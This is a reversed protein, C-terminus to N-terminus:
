RKPQSYSVTPFYGLTFVSLLSTKGCAGDGIIVLKRDVFITLIQSFFQRKLARRPLGELENPNWLTSSHVKQKKCVTRITDVIPSRLFSQLQEFTGECLMRPTRHNSLWPLILWLAAGALHLGWRLFIVRSQLLQVFRNISEGLHWADYLERWDLSLIKPVRSPSPPALDPNDYRWLTDLRIILRLCFLVFHSSSCLLIPVM